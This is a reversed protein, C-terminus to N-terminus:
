QIFGGPQSRYLGASKRHKRRETGAGPLIRLFASTMVIGATVGAIEYESRLGKASFAVEAVTEATRRFHERESFHLHADIIKL